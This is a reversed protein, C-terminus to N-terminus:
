WRVRQKRVDSCAKSKSGGSGHALYVRNKIPSRIDSTMIAVLIAKREKKRQNTSM